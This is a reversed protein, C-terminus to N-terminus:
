QALQALSVWCTTQAASPRPLVGEIREGLVLGALPVVMQTFQPWHRAALGLGCGGAHDLHGLRRIAV